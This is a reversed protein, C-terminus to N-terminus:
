LREGGVFWPDLFSSQSSVWVCLVSVVWVKLSVFGRVPANEDGATGQDAGRHARRPDRALIQDAYNEAFGHRNVTRIEWYPGNGRGQSNDM